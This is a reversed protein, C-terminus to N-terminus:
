PAGVRFTSTIRDFVPAFREFREEPLAQLVLTILTRGAFLFYHSHIGRQRRRADRFSYLYFYGPLGALEIRKPAALLKVGRGSRVLRDTLPKVRPLGASTVEIRLPVVRLLLSAADGQAAVLVVSPETSRLRTWRAPYGISLGTRGDRFAVFAPAGGPTAAPRADRPRPTPALEPGVRRGAFVAAAVALAVVLTALLLWKWPLGHEWAGRGPLRPVGIPM